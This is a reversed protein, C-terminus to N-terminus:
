ATAGPSLEFREGDGKILGSAVLISKKWRIRIERHGTYSEYWYEQGHLLGLDTLRWVKCSDRCQFPRREPDNPNNHIWHNFQEATLGCMQGLQTPIFWGTSGHISAPAPPQLAEAFEPMGHKQFVKAQFSEPSKGCIDAYHRARELEEEIRPREPVQVIEKKRYRQILEPIWRQFRLISMAVDREKLRDTNIAGLILYLGQENVSKHWSEDETPTSTVHVDSVHGTFKGSQRNLIQYLTNIKMGWAAALDVLPFWPEGNQEIARIEKGEFLTALAESM